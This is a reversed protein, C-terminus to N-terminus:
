DSANRINEIVVIIALTGFCSLFTFFVTWFTTAVTPREILYYRRRRRVRMDSPAPPVSRLPRVSVPVGPDGPQGEVQVAADRVGAAAAGEGAATAAAAAGGGDGGEVDREQARSGLLASASGGGKEKRGGKRARRSSQAVRKKM